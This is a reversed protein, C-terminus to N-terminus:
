SPASPPKVSTRLDGFRLQLATLGAVTATEARLIRPGLRVRHFSAQQASALEEATFGGEPGILLAVDSGHLEIDSFDCDGRPDLCVKLDTDVNAVWQELAAPPNVTVIRTRGCQESAHVAVAQWHEVRREARQTSLKVVARRTGLPTLQGVGLEVAKQIAYDMRDGRALAQGLHIRLGPETDSHKCMADIGINVRQKNCVEVVATYEDGDGAFVFLSDGPKVRLVQHLYRCSEGTLEVSEGVVPTQPIHVRHTRM